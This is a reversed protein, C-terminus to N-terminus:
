LFNMRRSVGPGSPRFNVIQRAGGRGTHEKADLGRHAFAMYQASLPPNSAEEQLIALMTLKLAALDPCRPVDTAALPVDSDLTIDPDYLLAPAYHALATIATGDEINGTVKYVHRLETTAGDTVEQFGQDILQQAGEGIKVDGSSGQAFEFEEAKIDGGAGGIQAAVIAVYEPSLTVYGDALTLTIKNRTWRWRGFELLRDDAEQLLRLFEPDNGPAIHAQIKTKLEQVTRVALAHM